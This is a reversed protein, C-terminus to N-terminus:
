LFIITENSKLFNPLQEFADWARYVKEAPVSHVNRRASVDPHTAITAVEISCGFAQGVLVYPSMEAYRINTNDVIVVPHAPDNMVHLFASMCFAHAEGLKRVDFKYAGDKEFYDDASCVFAQPHNRKVWTSKGAGPVGRMIIVKQM